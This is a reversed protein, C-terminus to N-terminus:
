KIGMIYKYSADRNFKSKFAYIMGSVLFCGDKVAFGMPDCSPNKEDDNNQVVLFHLTKNCKEDGIVKTVNNDDRLNHTGKKRLKRLLKMQVTWEAKNMVQYSKAKFHYNFVIDQHDTQHEIIFSLKSM